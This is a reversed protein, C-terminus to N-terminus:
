GTRRRRFETMGRLRLCLVALLFGETVVTAWAAGRAGYAPILLFNLGINLLASFGAAFAYYREMNRAVVGQTLISNPLVFLLAVLLWPLLRASEVYERGFTFFVIESSFVSGVGFLLAGALFMTLLMKLMESRFYPIDEWVLRLKRFWVMRLPFTMLLIGDLFRYAASYYGVEASNGTLYELLIIDCRYYIVTAMDIAIFGLCARRIDVIKLGGFAPKEFSVPSFFLSVLVGLAWGGFVAWPSPRVWFIAGLIGAAGLTRVLMQWQAERPFRGDGRLIASIFDAVALLGFYLVGAIMGSRYQFPLVLVFLIGAVSVILTNGSAWSFLRDEHEKLAPSPLTKERFLFTKFGGAQLIFFLSALTLIYSYQGFAEPGLVRGLLFTLCISVGANYVTAIWQSTLNISIRFM